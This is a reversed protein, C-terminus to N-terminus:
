RAALRQEAAAMVFAQRFPLLHRRIAEVEAQTPREADAVAPPPGFRQLCRALVASAEPASLRGGDIFLGAPDAAFDGGGTLKAVPIGRLAFFRLAHEGGGSFIGHRDGLGVVGVLAHARQERAVGLMVALEGAGARVSDSQSWAASRVIAIGAEGGLAAARAAPANAAAWAGACGLAFALRRSLPHLYIRRAM